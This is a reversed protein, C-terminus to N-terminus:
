CCQNKNLKRKKEQKERKSKENENIQKQFDTVMYEIYTTQKEIKKIKKGLDCITNWNTAIVNMQKEFKSKIKNNEDM